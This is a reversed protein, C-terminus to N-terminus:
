AARRYREAPTANRFGPAMSLRATEYAGWLAEDSLPPITVGESRDFGILAADVLDDVEMVNQLKSVDVGEREWIETRTVAPLVAQVYIGRPGFEKALGQSFNLIYAKTSSYIGPFYDPILGVVSGINVISGSGRSAMSSLAASALLTPATVNLKILRDLEAPKATGFSGVLSDGANNILVDVPSGDRLRREVHGLQPGDTLDATIIEVDIKHASRLDGALTELKDTTRAVVTLDYGREALKRAYSAGIGSSAGTILARAM